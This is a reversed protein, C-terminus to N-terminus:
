NQGIHLFDLASVRRLQVPPAYGHGVDVGVRDLPWGTHLLVVAVVRLEDDRLREGLVSLDREGNDVVVKGNSHYSFCKTNAVLM